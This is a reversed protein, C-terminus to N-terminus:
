ERPHPVISISKSEHHGMIREREALFRKAIGEADLDNCRLLLDRPGHEIFRDPLGMCVIRQEPPLNGIRERAALELVATGFGGILSHEEITIILPLKQLLPLLTNVDLPKAFRANVVTVYLDRQALAEAAALAPIVMSGYAILAGDPGNRLIESQGLAFHETSIQRRLTEAAARPYRIATPGNHSLALKLMYRLDITDAPAMLIINPLCRLCAIDFVGHHTPGDRGVLGARDMALVIPLEQLCLEHFVQDFGRQMFTSYIAVVPKLGGRALGAALGLAHQECIGVDFYRNPFEKAFASLGTGDPMAATIAVIREDQRALELLTEKFVDTFTVADGAETVTGTEVCFPRPSHYTVPDETAPAFGHGKQTVIHVLMPGRFHKIRAFTDILLELNHGDIPGFYRFGLEEFLQGAMMSHKVADKIHDFVLRMKDGVLPISELLNQIERKLENYTVGVRVKNLYNSLAGVTTAISMSNDNLVVLLDKKLQGAHNLAEFSMGAGIAGDGVVAVVRAPNHTLADAAALGLACSIATGAHGTTFLDYPSEDKCPFGSIGGFTRLTSFSAARGTLMKHAYAQHGVDWVLRDRSFDFVRHLAITLEVVGLNSALHGSNSAVVEKIVERMEQALAKLEDLSFRRLDSPAKIKSLLSPM